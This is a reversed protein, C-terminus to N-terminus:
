KNIKKITKDYDNKDTSADSERNSRYNQNVVYYKRKIIPIPKQIKLKQELECYKKESYGTWLVIKSFNMFAELTKKTEQLKKKRNKKIMM